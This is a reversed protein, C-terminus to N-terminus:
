GLSISLKRIEGQFSINHYENSAGRRPAELSYECCINEHLFLLFCCKDPCDELIFSCLYRIDVPHNSGNSSRTAVPSGSIHCRDDVGDEFICKRYISRWKVVQATDM